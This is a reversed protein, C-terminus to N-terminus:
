NRIMKEAASLLEEELVVCLNSGRYPKVKPRDTNLAQSLYLASTFNSVKVKILLPSSSASANMM